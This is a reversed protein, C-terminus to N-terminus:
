TVKPLFFMEATCSVYSWVPLLASHESIVSVSVQVTPESVKWAARGEDERGGQRGKKGLKRRLCEM